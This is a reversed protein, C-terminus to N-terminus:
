FVNMFGWVELDLVDFHDQSALPENGFTECSGSSGVSFDDELCLGFSGTIGGGGMAILKKNPDCLQVYRNAGTWKFAVIQDKEQNSNHPAFSVDESKAKTIKFLFSQGSGYFTPTEMENKLGGWADDCFAGFLDERNTRVVLITKQWKEVNALFTQFSDGDRSLSYIRKWKLLKISAPLYSKVFEAIMPKTLIPPVHRFKTPPEPEIEVKLDGWFDEDSELSEYSDSARRMEELARNAEAIKRELALQERRQRRQALYNGVGKSVRGIISEQAEAEAIRLKERQIEEQMEKTLTIKYHNIGSDSSLPEVAIGDRRITAAEMTDHIAGEKDIPSRTTQLSPQQIAGAVASRKIGTDNASCAAHQENSFNSQSVDAAINPDITKKGIMGARGSQFREHLRTARSSEAIALISTGYNRVQDIDYESDNSYKESETKEIDSVGFNEERLKGSGGSAEEKLIGNGITLENEVEDIQGSSSRATDEEEDEVQNSSETNTLDGDTNHEEENCQQNTSFSSTDGDGDLVINNETSRSKADCPTDNDVIEEVTRCDPLTEDVEDITLHQDTDNTRIEEVANTVTMDNRHYLTKSSEDKESYKETESTVGTAPQSLLASSTTESDQKLPGADADRLHSPLENVAMENDNEKIDVNGNSSTKDGSHEHTEERKANM